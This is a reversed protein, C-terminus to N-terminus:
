PYNKPPKNQQNNPQNNSSSSGSSNAPLNKPTVTPISQADGLVEGGGIWCAKFKSQVDVEVLYWGNYQGIIPLETGAFFGTVDPFSSDPGTRCYFNKNLRLVPNAAVKEVTSTPVPISTPLLTPELTPVKTATPTPSKEVPLTGLDETLVFYMGLEDNGIVTLDKLGTEDGTAALCIEIFGETIGAGALGALHGPLSRLYHKLSMTTMMTRATEYSLTTITYTSNIISISECISHTSQVFRSWGESNWFEDLIGPPIEQENVLDPAYIDDIHITVPSQFLSRVIMTSQLSSSDSYEIYQMTEVYNSEPLPLALILVGNKDATSVVKLGPIAEGTQSVLQISHNSIEVIGLENSLSTMQKSKSLSCASLMLVFALMSLILKNIPKM